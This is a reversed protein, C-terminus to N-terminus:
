RRETAFGNKRNFAGVSLLVSWAVKTCAPFELHFAKWRRTSSIALAMPEVHHNGTAHLVHETYNQQFTGVTQAEMWSM